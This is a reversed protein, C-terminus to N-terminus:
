CRRFSCILHGVLLRAMPMTVAMIARWTMWIRRTPAPGDIRGWTETPARSDAPTVTTGRTPVPTCSIMMTTTTTRTTRAFVAADRMAVLAVGGRVPQWLQTGTLAFLSITCNFYIPFCGKSCLADGLQKSLRKADFYSACFECCRFRAFVPSVDDDRSNKFNRRYVLTLASTCVICCVVCYFVVACAIARVVCMALATLILQPRITRLIKSAM